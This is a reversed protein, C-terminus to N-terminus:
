LIPFALGSSRIEMIAAGIEIVTGHAISKRFRQRRNTGSYNAILEPEWKQFYPALTIGKVLRVTVDAYDASYSIFIHDVSMDEKLKERGNNLHYQYEFSGKDKASKIEYHGLDSGYGLKGSDGTLISGFLEWDISPISGIISFNHEKLLRFREQRNIHQDYYEFAEQFYFDPM